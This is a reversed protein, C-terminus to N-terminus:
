QGCIVSIARIKEKVRIVMYNGMFKEQGCIVRISRITRSCIIVM